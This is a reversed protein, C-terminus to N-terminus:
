KMKRNQSIFRFEAEVLATVYIGASLDPNMIKGEEEVDRRTMRVM